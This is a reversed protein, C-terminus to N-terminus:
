KKVGHLANYVKKPDTIPHYNKVVYVRRLVKALRCYIQYQERDDPSDYYLRM